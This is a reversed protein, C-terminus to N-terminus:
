LQNSSPVPHNDAITDKICTNICCVAAELRAAYLLSSPAWNTLHSCALHLTYRMLTSPPCQLHLRVRESRM